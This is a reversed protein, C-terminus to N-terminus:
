TNKTTMQPTDNNRNLFKSLKQDHGFDVLMVGLFAERARLYPRKEPNNVMPKM